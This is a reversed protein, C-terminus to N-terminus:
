KIITLFPRILGQTRYNPSPYLTTLKEAGIQIAMPMGDRNMTSTWVYYGNANTNGCFTEAAKAEIAANFANLLIDDKAVDWAGQDKDTDKLEYTDAYCKMAAEYLQASSPIYWESANAPQVATTKWTEYVLLVPYDTKNTAGTYTENELLAKTATIGNFIDWSFETQKGLVVVADDKAGGAETQKYFYPRSNSLLYQENPTPFLDTGDAAYPIGTNKLAMVYGLIEKGAADAGYNDINDKENAGVAYVIGVCNAKNDETLENSWTGDIFFYDGVELEKEPEPEPEPVVMGGALYAGVARVQHNRPLSVNGAEMQCAVSGSTSNLTFSALPLSYGGFSPAFIYDTFLVNDESQLNDTTYEATVTTSLPEGMSVDFGSPVDYSVTVGTIKAYDSANKEVAILKSFPRILKLTRVIAEDSKDVAENLYFADCLDTDFLAAPNKIMVNKLSSTDYFLDEYHTYAGNPATKEETAADREIFDAWMLISYDGPELEFNFMPVSGAEVAQETRYALNSTATGRTWVELICRLKYDVPVSIEARTDANGIAGPLEASLCVRKSDASNGAAEEQTCSSLFAAFLTTIIFLIKKM